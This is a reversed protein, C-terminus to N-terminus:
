LVCRRTLRPLWNLKKILNFALPIDRPSQQLQEIQRHSHFKMVRDKRCDPSTEFTSRSTQTVTEFDLVRTVFRCIISNDRDSIKIYQIDEWLTPMKENLEGSSRRREYAMFAGHRSTRGGSGFVRLSSRTFKRISPATNNGVPYSPHSVAV